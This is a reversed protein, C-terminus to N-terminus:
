CGHSNVAEAPGLFSTQRLIVLLVSDAAHSLKNRQAYM